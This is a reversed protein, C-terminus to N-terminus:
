SEQKMAANKHTTILFCLVKEIYLFIFLMALYSKNSSYCNGKACKAYGKIM